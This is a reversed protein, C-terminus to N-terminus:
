YLGKIFLYAEEERIRVKTIAADKRLLITRSYMFVLQRTIVAVLAISVIVFTTTTMM